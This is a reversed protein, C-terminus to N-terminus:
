WVTIVCNGCINCLLCLVTLCDFNVVYVERLLQEMEKADMKESEKNRQNEEADFNGSGLIAQELGLKRSARKFMEAEFSKRTILRYVTVQKAQGIRHCRAMAQVDNQPNWDSDFIVVTDAATLNIGVGGARTSLLFVFSNKNKNFRDIAKQRENGSIGGDLRECPYEKFECYEEIMNIMRVMQSFILVKHGEKRLKPLLKDLLVMKGSSPIICQDMRRAEFEKKDARMTQRSKTRPSSELASKESNLNEELTEMENEEVGSILYPHNCTKRLEMQINMLKPMSGKTNQTLFSLNRQLIAVYYQKQITTLEVDIITEEKPPIDKAVDEKVRRLIHPAIRYQLSEVQEQTSITGFSSLFKDLDPFKAPEIFNLLSWLETTNNQLPTGTMLIRHQYGYAIQGKAVVARMCEILKSNVARLRHAEDVVVARWPVEALEEYDKILDDYTTILVHFKLLRRSRGKYYWEFERIVDRMDRGGGIDHYVCATMHTWGETERRWHEITSLPVCVLFPGKINDVSFLQDLFTVVQVTKGLGMEDALISSKKTHWCRLLWHLGEVQYDRLQGGNRYEKGKKPLKLKWEEEKKRSNEVDEDDDATSVVTLRRWHFGGATVSKRSLVSLIDHIPINLQRSASGANEWVKIVNGTTADLQEVQQQAANSANADGSEGVAGDKTGSGGAVKRYKDTGMELIYNAWESRNPPYVSEYTARLLRGM